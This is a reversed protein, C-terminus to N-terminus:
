GFGHIERGDSDVGVERVQHEPTEVPSQYKINGKSDRVTVSASARIVMTETASVTVNLSPKVPEAHINADRKDKFFSLVRSTGIQKDFEM